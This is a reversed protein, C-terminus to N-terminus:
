TFLNKISLELSELSEKSKVVYGRIGLELGESVKDMGELNSTILVPIKGKGFKENAQKLFDLGNMLPMNIDLLIADPTCTEILKLGEVGNAAFVVKYDKPDLLAKVHAVFTTDDDLLLITKM